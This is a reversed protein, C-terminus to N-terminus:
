RATLLAQHGHAVNICGMSPALAREAYTLGRAVHAETQARATEQNGAKAVALAWLQQNLARNYWADTADALM